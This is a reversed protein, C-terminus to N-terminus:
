GKPMKSMDMYLVNWRHGDPDTFGFGYMWGQKEGPGGFIKGGADKVRKALADVEERTEADISFLVESARRTDSIENSTFGKFIPESFLMLVVNKDGILFSASEDSNGYRQNLTFGIETFFDRSRKVDKVPLNVWFEKTM